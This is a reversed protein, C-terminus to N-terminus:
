VFWGGSMIPRPSYFPARAGFKKRVEPVIRASWEGGGGIYHARIVSVM